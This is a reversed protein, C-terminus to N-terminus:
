LLDGTVIDDFLATRGLDEARSTEGSVIMQLAIAVGVARPLRQTGGAGPLIGLKVEPLAILADPKALRFHCGLALELGGGMCAGAIAAIVPKSSDEIVQIVTRLNPEQLARPTGFERVDAGGSFARESGMLLIARVQSDALARVMLDVITERLALSLGNVPPNNLEIVAVSGRVTYLASSNM